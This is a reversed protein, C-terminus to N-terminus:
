VVSISPGPADQSSHLLRTREPLHIGDQALLAEYVPVPRLLRALAYASM